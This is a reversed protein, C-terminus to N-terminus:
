VLGDHNNERCHIRGLNQWHVTSFQLICCVRETIYNLPSFVVTWVQTFLGARRWSRPRQTRYYSYIEPVCYSANFTQLLLFRVSKLTFFNLTNELHRLLRYFGGRRFIRVICSCRITRTPPNFYSCDTSTSTIVYSRFCSIMLEGAPRRTALLLSVSQSLSSAM